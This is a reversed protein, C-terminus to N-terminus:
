KEMQFEGGGDGDQHALDEDPRRSNRPLLATVTGTVKRALHFVVSCSMASNKTM